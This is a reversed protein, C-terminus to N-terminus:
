NNYKAVITELGNAPAEGNLALVPEGLTGLRWDGDKKYFRAMEIATASSGDETLDFSYLKEDTEDNYIYLYANAARGFTIKDGQSYVTAVILVEENDSLKDLNINIVEDDGEGEGTTNDGNHRIVDKYTLGNYWVIGDAVGNSDHEGVAKGNSTVIASADLDVVIGQKEDWALGVRIKKLGPNKKSLNVRDGAGMKTLNAM